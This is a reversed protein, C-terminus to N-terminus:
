CCVEAAPSPGSDDWAKRSGGALVLFISLCADHGVSMSGTRGMPRMTGMLLYGTLELPGRRYPSSEPTCLNQVPIRRWFGNKSTSPINDSKFCLPRKPQIHLGVLGRGACVRV